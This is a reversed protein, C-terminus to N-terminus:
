IKIKSRKRGIKQGTNQINPRMSRKRPKADWLKLGLPPQAIGLAQLIHGCVSELVEYAKGYEVNTVIEKQRM